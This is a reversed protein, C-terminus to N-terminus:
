ALRRRSFLSRSRGASTRRTRGPAALGKRTTELSAFLFYLATCVVSATKFSGPSVVAAAALLACGAPHHVPLLRSVIRSIEAKHDKLNM